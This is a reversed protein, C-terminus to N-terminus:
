EKRLSESIAKIYGEPKLDLAAALKFITVLTPQKHGNELRSIHTPHSDILDALAEQSLNLRERYEKLLKGYATIIEKDEMLELLSIGQLFVLWLRFPM